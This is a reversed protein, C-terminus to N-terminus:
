RGMPGSVTLLKEFATLSTRATITYRRVNQTRYHDNVTVCAPIRFFGPDAATADEFWRNREVDLTAGAAETMSRVRRNRGEGLTCLVSYGASVAVSDLEADGFGYPWSLCTVKNGLHEEILQKSRHLDRYVGEAWSAAGPMEYLGLRAAVFIPLMGESTKVKRHLDHSHSQITFVGSQQLRRLEDWGLCDVRDWKKGVESTVVFLTAKFGHKKLIPYAYDFASRDGDDFTIVIPKPPLERIGDRWAAVDDLDVTEYGERELYAMQADFVGATQTWVDMDELLPLNLFLAGLIKVFQRPTTEPRLYHHCLVPVGPSDDDDPMATWETGSPTASSERTPPVTGSPAPALASPREVDRRSSFGGCVAALGSLFVAASIAGVLLAEGLVRLSRSLPFM